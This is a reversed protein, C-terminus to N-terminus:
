RSALRKIGASDAAAVADRVRKGAIIWDPAIEALPVLVFARELVGPHPLTLGPEDIRLDDYALVDIDVPRPGFRQETTRDRGLTREVTQARELLARPSLHTAVKLCSNVFDPQDRVGWPPTQYDSSRALLVVAQEDCLLVVARDLTARVAGTNGGLAILAEPV